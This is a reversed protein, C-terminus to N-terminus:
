PLAPLRVGDASARLTWFDSNFLSFISNIQFGLIRATWVGAAPNNVTVREPSRITAGTVIQNGNPDQLILDLDDTPYAGWTRLWSLLFAAQATGAPVQVQVVTEEGQEILGSKTPSLLSANQRTIEVDCSVTGANTTDGQVAVRVLGAQPLPVNFTTDAVIFDQARTSAFSTFADDITVLVDDGFLQNQSAPPLSPTVNKITVTLNETADTTPVYLQAM